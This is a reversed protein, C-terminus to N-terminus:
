QVFDNIMHIYKGYSINVFINLITSKKMISFCINCYCKSFIWGTYKILLKVLKTGILPKMNIM